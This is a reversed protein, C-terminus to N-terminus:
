CNHTQAMQILSKVRPLWTSNEKWDSSVLAMQQKNAEQYQRSALAQVLAMLKGVATPSLEGQGLKTHLTALHKKIDNIQMQLLPFLLLLM